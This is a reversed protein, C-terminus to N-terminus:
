TESGKVAELDILFIQALFSKLGVGTVVRGEWRLSVPKRMNLDLREMQRWEGM